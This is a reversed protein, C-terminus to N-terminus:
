NLSTGMKTAMVSLSKLSQLAKRKKLVGIAYKMLSDKDENSMSFDFNSLLIAKIFLSSSEYPKEYKQSKIESLVDVGDLECLCFTLLIKSLNSEVEDRFKTMKPRQRQNFFDSTMMSVSVNPLTAIVFNVFAEIQTQAVKKNAEDLEDYKLVKMLEKLILFRTQQDFVRVVYALSRMYFDLVKKFHLSTTQVDLIHEAARFSRAYLSLSEYFYVSPDRKHEHPKIDKVPADNLPDMEDLMSDAEQKSKHNGILSSEMREHDILDILDHKVANSMEVEADQLEAFGGEKLLSSWAKDVKNGLYELIKIDSKKLASLYEIVKDFRIFDLDNGLTEYDISKKDIWNAYAYNFFCIQSFSYTDREKKLVGSQIVPKVYREVNFDQSILKNFEIAYSLLDNYTRCYVGNHHMKDAIFGLFLLIDKYQPTEHDIYIVHKHLISEIFNEVLDAEHMYSKHTTSKRDSISLLMTYVFPNSPMGAGDIVRLANRLAKENEGNRSPAWKEFLDRVQGRQISKVNLFNFKIGANTRTSIDAVLDVLATRMSLQGLLYFKAHRNEVIYKALVKITNKDLADLSDFVIVADSGSLKKELRQSFVKANDDDIYFSLLQNKIQNTSNLNAENLDLYYVISQLNEHSQEQLYTLLIRKAITTKGSNEAGLIIHSHTSAILNSLSLVKASNVSERNANFEGGILREDDLVLAPLVFIDSLKKRQGEGLGTNCLLDYEINSIKTECVSAFASTNFPVSDDLSYDIEGDQIREVWSVFQEKKSDYKRFIIRGNEFLSDEHLKLISYGGFDDKKSLDFRGAQLKLVSNEAFQSVKLMSFEHMHGYFVCKIGARHILDSVVKRDDAHLWDLPHHLVLIKQQYRELLKLVERIQWEGVILKGCDNEYALWASNVCGIGVGDIEYASFISNSILKSKFEQADVDDRFSLFDDIRKCSNDQIIENLIKEVRQQDPQSVINDRISKDSEKWAKRNSDHNGPTVIVRSFDLNLEKLLPSLFINKFLQYEEMVGANAIDGTILILDIAQYNVLDEILCNLLKKLEYEHMGKSLSVSVHIDSIHLINKM